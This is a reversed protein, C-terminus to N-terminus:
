DRRIKFVLTPPGPLVVDGDAGMWRHAIDLSAILVRRQTHTLYVVLPKSDDM